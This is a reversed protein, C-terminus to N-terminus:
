SPVFRKTFPIKLLLETQASSQQLFQPRDRYALLRKKTIKDVLPEGQDPVM